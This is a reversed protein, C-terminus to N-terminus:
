KKDKNDLEYDGSPIVDVLTGYGDFYLEFEKSDNSIEVKFTMFDDDRGIREASVADYEPYETDILTQIEMPLEWVPIMGLEEMYLDDDADLEDEQFLEDDPDTEESIFDVEMPFDDDMFQATYVDGYRDWVVNVADPYLTEFERLIDEPVDGYQASVSLSLVFLFLYVLLVKM